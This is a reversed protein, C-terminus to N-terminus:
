KRVVPVSYIPKNEDYVYWTANKTAPNTSLYVVHRFSKVEKKTALLKIPEKVVIKEGAVRYTGKKVITREEYNDYVENALANHVQWDNSENLTVVVIQKEDKEFFTALTRGAVKTFGTKGAIAGNNQTLLKHKNKWSYQGNYVVTSAIKKFTKNKMALQLMRATDYASSLHEDNHLGSPNTFKTNALGAYMARENMLHVFGDISGGVHEALAYAADNGSRLLLGYLLTEVTYTEGAKLYISSGESLAARESITVVDNLDSNEIVVLATWMKTLSAIPLEDYVNSGSLLRGTKADIVAYAHGAAHVPQQPIMLFLLVIVLLWKKM